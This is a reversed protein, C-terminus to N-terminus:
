IRDGTEADFLHVNGPDVDFRCRDGVEPVTRAHDERVVLRHGALDITILSEHGLWEVALVPGEIAGDAADPGAPVGGLLLQEPRIGVHVKRGSEIREAPAPPLAVKIAGVMAVPQGDVLEVQGDLVNMPPTGIFGAVFLNAPAAYVEQPTGVQQLRGDAMVAIRHAMTM